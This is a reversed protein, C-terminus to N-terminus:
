SLKLVKLQTEKSSGPSLQYHVVTNKLLVSTLNKLSSYFNSLWFHKAYNFLYSSASYHGSYLIIMQSSFVMENLSDFYHQYYTDDYEYGNKIQIYGAIYLISLLTDKQINEELASLNDMIESEKEDLNCELDHLTKLDSWKAVQVVGNFEFSLEGSKETLCNNRICKLTSMTM